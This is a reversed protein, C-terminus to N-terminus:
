LTKKNKRKFQNLKCKIWKKVIKLALKQSKSKDIIRWSEVPALNSQIKQLTFLKWQIERGHPSFQKSTNINSSKRDIIVIKFCPQM